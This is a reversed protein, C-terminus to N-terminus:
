TDQEASLVRELATIKKWVGYKVAKHLYLEKFEADSLQRVQKPQERDGLTFSRTEKGELMFEKIDM